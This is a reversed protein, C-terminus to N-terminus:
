VQSGHVVGQRRESEVVLSDPTGTARGEFDIWLGTMERKVMEMAVEQGSGSDNKAQILAVSGM